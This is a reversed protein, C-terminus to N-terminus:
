DNGWRAVIDDMIAFVESVTEARLLAIRTQKFDPLGKFVPSAAFHRRSHVIGKREDNGCWQIASLVHEKLVNVKEEMSRPPAASLGSRQLVAESYSRGKSQLVSNGALYEKMEAFLWPAGFTARGVM